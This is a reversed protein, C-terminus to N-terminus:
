KNNGGRNDKGVQRNDAALTDKRLAGPRKLWRELVSTTTRKKGRNGKAGGRVEPELCTAGRSTESPECSGPVGLLPDSTVGQIIDPKSRSASAEIKERRSYYQTMRSQNIDPEKKRKTGRPTLKGKSKEEIM